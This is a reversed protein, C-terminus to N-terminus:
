FNEGCLLNWLFYRPCLLVEAVLKPSFTQISQLFCIEHNLTKPDIINSGVPQQPTPRGQCAWLLITCTRTLLGGLPHPWPIEQGNLLELLLSVTTLFISIWIFLSHWNELSLKSLLFYDNCFRRCRKSDLYISKLHWKCDLECQIRYHKFHLKQYQLFQFNKGRNEICNNVSNKWQKLM